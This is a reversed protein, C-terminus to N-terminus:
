YDPSRGGEGYIADDYLGLLVHTHTSHRGRSLRECHDITRKLETIPRYVINARLPLLM